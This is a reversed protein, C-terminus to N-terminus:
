YYTPIKALEPVMGKLASLDTMSTCILLGYGAILVDRESFAWTMSNGRLRWSFFRPPLTLVTWDYEPFANVLGKRWYQHSLADYASFLLIRM